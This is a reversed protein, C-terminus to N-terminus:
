RSGVIPLTTAAKGSGTSSPQGTRSGCRRGSAKQEGFRPRSQDLRETVERMLLEYRVDGDGGGPEVEALGLWCSKCAACREVLEVVMSSCYRGSPMPCSRDGRRPDLVNEELGNPLTRALEETINGM